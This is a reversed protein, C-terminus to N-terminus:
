LGSKSENGAMWDECLVRVFYMSPLLIFGVRCIREREREPLIRRLSWSTTRDGGRVAGDCFPASSESERCFPLSSIRRERM